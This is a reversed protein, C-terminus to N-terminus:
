PATSFSWVIPALPAGNVVASVSVTYTQGAALPWLPLLVVADRTDLLLKGYNSDNANAPYEAASFACHPLPGSASSILTPDQAALHEGSLSGDGLQVLLPLGQAGACGNALYPDPNDMGAYARPTVRAGRGPWVVPYTVGAPAGAQWGSVVNLAAATQWGGDAEQYVGLGAARLEPDLLSLAQFPARMWIDVLDWNTLTLTDTVILLSNAAAQAGEDSYWQPFAVRDESGVLQDTKVMYAAHRAAGDSWDPSDLLLPLGAQARYANVRELRGSFDRAVNPLYLPGAAQPLAKAAEPAPPDAFMLWAFLSMGLAFPIWLSTTLRRM